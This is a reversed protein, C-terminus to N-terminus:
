RNDPQGVRRNKFQAMLSKAVTHVDELSRVPDKLGGDDPYLHKKM